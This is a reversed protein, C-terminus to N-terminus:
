DEDEQANFQMIMRPNGKLYRLVRKLKAQGGETPAAADRMLEKAAYRLDFRDAALYQLVGARSRYEHHADADHLEESGEFDGVEHFGPTPAPKADELGAELLLQEAHKPDAEYEWGDGTVRFIRKLFSGQKLDDPGHGIIEGVKCQFNEAM